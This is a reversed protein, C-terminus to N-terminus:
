TRAPVKLVNEEPLLETTWTMQRIWPSVRYREGQYQSALNELVRTVTQFGLDGAWTLPGKPYNVGKRMAIDVDSSTAVGQNVVDAAENALMAVTRMVAMGAVDKMPSIAYEAAQLLGVISFYAADDCSQARALALRTATAYDLALDVVVCNPRGIDHALQAATRGDTVKLIAGNIEVAATDDSRDRFISLGKGVLRLELARSLQETPPLTVRDPKPKLLETSPIAGVTAGSYDYFGCGTKRGLRGASVMESQIFSPRYRSDCFYANFLSHSVALGVDVGILDMLEFPGMRFGGSERMVCDITAPNGAGETLLALAEGYFARAIRNVIFGPTSKAYVPTKGWKLSTDHATVLVERDTALGSIVEVLEMLPAPNFFHMGVLRQPYKLGAAIASVSISSTNTAFICGPVTLEELNAFLQRKVGLDEAVAEIVIGADSIESLASAARLGGSAKEAAEPSIRNKEVSKRLNQQITAIAKPVAETRADYLVVPHGAMAAVQAIGAGMTGSGVVAVVTNASIASV